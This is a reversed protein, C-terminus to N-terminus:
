AIYLYLCSKSIPSVFIKVLKVAKHGSSYTCNARCKKFRGYANDTALVAQGGEDVALTKYQSARRQEFPKCLYLNASVAISTLAVDRFAIYYSSKNLVFNEIKM